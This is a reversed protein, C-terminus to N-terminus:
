IGRWTQGVLKAPGAIATGNLAKNLSAEKCLLTLIRRGDSFPVPLLNYLGVLLNYLGFIVVATGLWPGLVMAGALVLNVVPGAMSVALNQVASGQERVVYPGRWNVGIRRIKLNLTRACIIHGAEHCLAAGLIPLVNLM